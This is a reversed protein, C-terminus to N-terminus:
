ASNPLQVDWGYTDQLCLISVECATLNPRLADPIPVDVRCAIAPNAGTDDPTLVNYYAALNANIPQGIKFIGRHWRRHALDM